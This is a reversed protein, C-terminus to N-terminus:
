DPLGGRPWGPRPFRSAPANEAAASRARNPKGSPDHVNAVSGGFHRAVSGRRVTRHSEAPFPAEGSAAVALGSGAIRLGRHAALRGSLRFHRRFPKFLNFDRESIAGRRGGWPPGHPFREDGLSQRGNGCHVPHESAPQRRRAEMEPTANKSKPQVYGM